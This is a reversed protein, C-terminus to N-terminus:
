REAVVAAPEDPAHRESAVERRRFTFSSRGARVPEHRTTVIEIAGDAAARTSVAYRPYPEIGNLWRQRAAVLERQGRLELRQSGIEAVHVWGWHTGTLLAGAVLAALAAGGGTLLLVAGLVLLLFGITLTLGTMAAGAGVLRPRWRSPTIPDPRGLTEPLAPLDADLLRPDPALNVLEDTPDSDEPMGPWPVRRIVM